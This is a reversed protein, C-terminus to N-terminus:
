INLVNVKDITAPNYNPYTLADIDNMATIFKDMEKIMDVMRNYVLCQLPKKDLSDANESNALRIGTGNVSYMGSETYKFFVYNAILSQKKANSLGRWNYYIGDITYEKGNLLDTWKSEPTGTLGALFVKYLDYGMVQELIEPEFETIYSTLSKVEDVPLQRDIVFYTTDIINAM